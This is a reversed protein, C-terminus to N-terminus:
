QLTIKATRKQATLVASGKKQGLRTWNNKVKVQVSATLAPLACGAKAPKQTVTKIKKNAAVQTKSGYTMACQYTTGVVKWGAPTKAFATKDVIFTSTMTGIYSATMTPQFNAGTVVNTTKAKITPTYVIKWGRGLKITRKVHKPTSMSVTLMTDAPDDKAEYIADGIVGGVTGPNEQSPTVINYQRTISVPGTINADGAFTVTVLCSGVALTNLVGEEDISCKDDNDISYTVDLDLAPANDVTAGVTLQIDDETLDINGAAPTDVAFTLAATSKAFTFSYDQSKAATGLDAAQAVTIKCLGRAVRTVTGNASVTCTKTTGSKYTLTPVGNGANTTAGLPFSGVSGPITAPVTSTIVPTDKAAVYTITVTGLSTTGQKITAIVTGVGAANLQAVTPLPATLNRGTADLKLKAAGSVLPTPSTKLVNSGVGNSYQVTLATAGSGITMQVGANVVMNGTTGKLVKRADVTLGSAVAVPETFVQWGPATMGGGMVNRGGALLTRDGFKFLKTSRLGNPMLEGDSMTSTGLDLVKAQAPNMTMQSQILLVKGSPLLAGFAVTFYGNPGSTLNKKTITNNSADYIDYSQGGGIPSNPGMMMTNDGAILTKNGGLNVVAPTVRGAGLSPGATLAGTSETYIKTGATAVTPAMIRDSTGFLLWKGAGAPIINVFPSGADAFAVTVSSSNAGGITILEGDNYTNMDYGGFVLVKGNGLLQAVAGRRTKDVLLNTAGAAGTLTTWRSGAAAAPDYIEITRNPTYNANTGGGVMVKNDALAVAWGTAHVTNSAETTEFTGGKLNSNAGPTFIVAKGADSGSTATNYGFVSGNTMQVISTNETFFPAPATVTEFPSPPCEIFDEGAPLASTFSDIKISKLGAAGAYYPLAVSGDSAITTTAFPVGVESWYGDTFFQPLASYGLTAGLFTAGVEASNGSGKELLIAFPYVPSSSVPEAGWNPNSWSLGNFYVDGAPTQTLGTAKRYTGSCSPAVITKSGNSGFATDLAGSTNLRFLKTSGSQSIELYSKGSDTTFIERVSPYNDSPLNNNSMTATGDASVQMSFPTKTNGFNNCYGNSAPSKVLLATFLPDGAEPSANSIIHNDYSYTSICPNQFAAAQTYNSVGTVPSALFTLTNDATVKAFVPVNSFNIRNQYDNPSTSYAADCGVEVIPVDSAASIPRIRSSDATGSLAGPFAASCLASLASNNLTWSNVQSAGAFNVNYTNTATNRDVFVVKGDSYWALAPDRSDENSDALSQGTVDLVGNTGFAPDVSGTNLIHVLKIRSTFDSGTLFAFYSGGRGDSSQFRKFGSAILDSAAASTIGQHAYGPGVNSSAPDPDTPLTVTFAQDQVQAARASINWLETGDLTLTKIATAYYKGATLGDLVTCEQYGGSYLNGNGNNRAAWSCKSTGTNTHATAAAVAADSTAGEFVYADESVIDDIFGPQKFNIRLTKHGGQLSLGSVGLPATRAKFTVLRAKLSSDYNGGRDIAVLGATADVTIATVSVLRTVFQLKVSDYGTGNLNSQIKFSVKSGTVATVTADGNSNFYCNMSAPPCTYEGFNFTSGVAIGSTSGSVTADYNFFGNAQSPTGQAIATATVQEAGGMAEFQPLGYSGNGAKVLRQISKGNGQIFLIDNNTPDVAFDTQERASANQNEEALSATATATTLDSTSYFKFDWAGPSWMNSSTAVVLKGDGAMKIGWVTNTQTTGDDSSWTSGNKTIKFVKTLNAIFVMSESAAALGRTNSYGQLNNSLGSTTTAIVTGTLNASSDTLGTIDIQILRRSSEAGYIGDLVFISNGVVDMSIPRYLKTVTGGITTVSNSSDTESQAMLTVPSASSITSLKTRKLFTVESGAEYGDTLAQLSYAWGGKVVVRGSTDGNYNDGLVVSAAPQKGSSAAATAPMVTLGTLVIALAAVVASFKASIKKSM